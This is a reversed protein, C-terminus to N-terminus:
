EEEPAGSAEALPETAHGLKKVWKPSHHKAHHFDIKGTVMSRLAPREEAIVAAMALHVAVGVLVLAIALQHVVIAAAVIPAPGLHFTMVVGSAIITATAVLVFMAFLKQGANYKDQPPLPRKWLGAMALPKVALWVLDDRGVRVDEWVHRVNQKFLLFLPVILAAWAIGWLVHVNVLAAKGGLARALAAPFATGFFAFSAASMLGAGTVVLLAWSLANFWHLVRLGAPHRHLETPTPSPTPASSSAPPTAAAEEEERRVREKRAKLNVVLGGAIALMGIGPVANRAIPTTVRWTRALWSRSPPRVVGAALITERARAGAYLTRPRVDIGPVALPRADRARAAVSVPSSPDDLDGFVRCEAPCTQVCAPQEGRAVYPACLNCKEVVKKVPDVHRAGYPCASVCSGCGICVDADVVVVGNADVTTAGTPCDTTCPHAECQMCLGPYFTVALDGGARSGTEFTRVWDRAAGPGTDWQEKCASLCAKCGVCLDLDVLMAHRM